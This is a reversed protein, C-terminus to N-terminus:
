ADPLYLLTIHEKDDSVKVGRTHLEILNVKGNSLVFNSIEQVSPYSTVSRQTKSNYTTGPLNYRIDWKSTQNGQNRNKSNNKITRNNNNSNNTSSPPCPNFKITIKADLQEDNSRNCYVVVKCLSSSMVQLYNLAMIIIDAPSINRYNIVYRDNQQEFNFNANTMVRSTVKIKNDKCAVSM